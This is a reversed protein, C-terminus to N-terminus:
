WQEDVPKPGRFIDGEGILEGKGNITLLSRDGTYIEKM